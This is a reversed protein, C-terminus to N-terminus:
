GARALRNKNRRVVASKCNNEYNSSFKGEFLTTKRMLDGHDGHCHNEFNDFDEHGYEEIELPPHM